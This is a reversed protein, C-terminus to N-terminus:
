PCNNQDNGANLTFRQTATVTVGGVSVKEIVTFPQFNFVTIGGFGDLRRSRCPPRPEGVGM